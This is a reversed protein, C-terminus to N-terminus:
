NHDEWCWGVQIKTDQSKTNFQFKIWVNEIFVVAHNQNLSVPSPKNGLVIAEGM